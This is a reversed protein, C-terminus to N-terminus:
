HKKKVLSFVLITVVLNMFGGILTFVGNYNKELINSLGIGILMLSCLALVVVGVYKM